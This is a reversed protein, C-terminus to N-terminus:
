LEDFYLTKSLTSEYDTIEEGQYFINLDYTFNEEDEIIYITFNNYFWDDILSFQAMTIPKGGYSYPWEVNFENYYVNRINKYVNLGKLSAYIRNYHEKLKVDDIKHWGTLGMFSIRNLKGEYLSFDVMYTRNDIKTCLMALLYKRDRFFRNPNSKVYDRIEQETMGIYFGAFTKITDPLTTQLVIEEKKVEANNKHSSKGKCGIFLVLLIIPITKM